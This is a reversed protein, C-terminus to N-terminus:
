RRKFKLLIPLTAKLVELVRDLEEICNSADFSFRVNGEIEEDNRGLVHLFGKAKSKNSSCASGTSVFIGAEELAHLLVEGRLGLFSVSLIYPSFDDSDLSNIRVSAIEKIGELLYSKLTLVKEYNVLMEKSGHCVAVDLAAIGPVNETGSRIGKQQHGGFILPKILVGKKIYLAGIGKPGHIKHGSITFVDVQWKAPYTDIKGFSQIGDVHFLTSSNKSKIINGLKKINQITGIENNIHMISVLITDQRILDELNHEDVIGNEDVKVYSIKFGQSELSEYTEKVSAHEIPTLIMHKGNRQYANALGSIALNNAETGGSTFYIDGVQVRLRDSISKKCQTIIKEADMGMTHLSSPNGYNNIMCDCAKKAAKELVRTTAAHDLYITMIIHM